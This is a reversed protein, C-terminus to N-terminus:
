RLFSPSEESSVEVKRPAFDLKELLGDSLVILLGLFTFYFVSVQCGSMRANRNENRVSSISSM